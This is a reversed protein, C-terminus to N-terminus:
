DIVLRYYKLPEGTEFASASLEMRVVRGTAIISGPEDRWGGGPAMLDESVQLRYTQNERADSIEMAMAHEDAHVAVSPLYDLYVNDILYQNNQDPSSGMLRIKVARVDRRLAAFDEMAGLVNVWGGKEASTVDASFNYWTGTGAPTFSRSFLFGDGELLLDVTFPSENDPMSVAMFSFGILQIGAADYDGVFPGNLTLLTSSAPVPLGTSRFTVQAAGGSGSGTANAFHSWKWDALGSEFTETVPGGQVSVAILGATGLTIIRKM